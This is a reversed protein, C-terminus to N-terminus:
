DTGGGLSIPKDRFWLRRPLLVQAPRHSVELAWGPEREAGPLSLRDPLFFRDLGLDLSVRWGPESVPLTGAAHVAEEWQVVARAQSWPRGDAPPPGTRRLDCVRRLEGSPCFAVLVSGAYSRETGMFRTVSERSLPTDPQGTRLNGDQPNLAFYRGRIVDYPDVPRLPIRFTPAHAWVYEHYTAWGLIVSAQLAVLVAVKSWPRTM